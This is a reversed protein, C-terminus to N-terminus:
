LFALMLVEVPAAEPIAAILMLAAMGLLTVQITKLLLDSPYVEYEIVGPVSTTFYFVDVFGCLGKATGSIPSMGPVLAIDSDSYRHLQPLPSQVGGLPKIEYMQNVPIVVDVKGTGGHEGGGEVPVEIEAGAIKTVIDQQIAFHAFSGLQTATISLGHHALLLIMNILPTVSDRGSPDIFNVPDAGCYLYRHLSRPEFPSGAFTDMTWFRGSGPNMYRARLYTMQLAADFAEGAYRNVNPTAGVAAVQNGFADYTYHDTVAGTSGTLFRVSGQGDYGYYSTVWAANILQSQSIRTTGYTYVRQVAGNVLEELVQSYGTPNVTDVLYTTSVGAASLGVRNGDGDYQITVAGSNMQKLRGEFDYAYANAGSSTTAGNLDYGDTKLQDNADYASMAAPVAALTSTRTLRNGVPDFTYGVAGNAGDPDGTITEGTLRYLSDYGWVAKRGSAETVSLRNGAAGLSYAYSALTAGKAATLNTLRNLNDYTYSSQVGNPYLVGALNGVVDYTYATNGMGPRNDTVTAVRNLNDYAYNVSTGNTNSSRVSLLNGAHDWRYTLGGQPGVKTLARDRNDYTYQTTGVADAMSARRGTLTYNFQVAHEGLSTDPTKSLLRNMTDYAYTTTKGRFDTRSALNGAAAIADRDMRDACRM